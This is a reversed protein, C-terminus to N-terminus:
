LQIDELCLMSYANMQFRQDRIIGNTHLEAFGISVDLLSIGQFISLLKESRQLCNKVAKM